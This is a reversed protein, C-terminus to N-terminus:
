DVEEMGTSSMDSRVLGRRAPPAPSMIPSVTPSALIADDEEAVPEVASVHSASANAMRMMRAVTSGPLGVVGFVDEMPDGGSQTHVPSSAGAGGVARADADGVGTSDRLAESIARQLGNSFANRYPSPALVPDMPRGPTTTANRVGRGSAMCATRQTMLQTAHEHERITRLPTNLTQECITLEELIMAVQPLDPSYGQASLRLQAVRALLPARADMPMNQAIATRVEEMLQVVNCRLHTMKGYLVDAPDVASDAEVPLTTTAFQLERVNYGRVQIEQGAILGRVIVAVDSEDQLDGIRIIQNTASQEVPYHSIQTAGTPIQVVVQQFGCSILGGLIDGFVTAVDELNEVVNYSGSGETAIARLLAGNHDVGYGVCSLTTGSFEALLSRVIRAIQAPDMVGANAQGDTLLLIGQKHPTTGPAFLCDRTALIGDSLNTGGDATLSAVRHQLIAINDRATVSQQVVRKAHDSFTVISVTDAATLIELIYHLSKKVNTLKSNTTMSGSTDILICFHVPVRSDAPASNGRVRICAIDDQIM